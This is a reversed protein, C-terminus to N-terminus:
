SSRSSLINSETSQKNEEAEIQVAIQVESHAAINQVGESSDNTLQDADAESRAQAGNRGNFNLWQGRQGDAQPPANDAQLMEQYLREIDAM